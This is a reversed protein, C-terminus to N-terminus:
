LNEDVKVKEGDTLRTKRGKEMLERM